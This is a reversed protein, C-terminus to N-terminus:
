FVARTDLDSRRPKVKVGYRTATEVVVETFWDSASPAIRIGEVLQDIDIPVPIGEASSPAEVWKGLWEDGPWRMLIGRLESEHEFSMRKHLFPRFTNDRRIWGSAYDIYNVLGVFVQDPGQISGVFRKFTTQIAIGKGQGAYIAWMAASEYEKAHWCSIHHFQPMRRNIAETQPGMTEVIRHDEPPLVQRFYETAPETYSGEFPDGLLDARAFWLARQQLLAVFKAFEFYRWLLASPAPANFVPHEAYAM